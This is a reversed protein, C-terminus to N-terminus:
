NRGALHDEGSEKKGQERKQYGDIVDKVITQISELDTTPKSDVQGKKDKIWDHILEAILVYGVGFPVELLLEIIKEHYDLGLKQETKYTLTMGSYPSSVDGWKPTSNHFLQKITTEHPDSIIIRLKIPAQKNM